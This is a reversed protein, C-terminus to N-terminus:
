ELLSFIFSVLLFFIFIILPILMMFLYIKLLTKLIKPIEVQIQDSKPNSQSNINFNETQLIQWRHGTYRLKRTKGSKLQVTVQEEEPLEIEM